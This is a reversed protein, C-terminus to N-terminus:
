RGMRAGSFPNAPTKATITEASNLKKLRIRALRIFIGDPFRELYAEHDAISTSDKISDWFALEAGASDDPTSPLEPVAVVPVPNFYFDGTLSSEEWPVQRDNTEAAVTTRVQRFARELPIGPIKM